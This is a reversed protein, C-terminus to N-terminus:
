KESRRGGTAETAGGAGAGVSTPSPSEPTGTNPLTEECYLQYGNHIISILLTLAMGIIAITGGLNFLQSADGLMPNDGRLWLATNGSALLLRLETPGFKAFSLRFKGLAHTALYVETSLMLFAILMGAAVRPRMLGSVAMGGVLFFSGLTDIVHDVYFGYRPRLQRRVRALTGDLSDGLWNFFLCVTALILGARNWRVAAYSAGASVMSLFGLLTLHDSNIWVPLRTAIWPLVRREFPATFSTQVRAAEQFSPPTQQEQDIM